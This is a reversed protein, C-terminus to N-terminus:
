PNVTEDPYSETLDFTSVMSKIKSGIFTGLRHYGKANFHCGDNPRFVDGNFANMGCENLVDIVPLCYRKAIARIVPETNIVTQTQADSYTSYPPTMLIIQAHNQTQAMISEIIKCYCGCETDAYDHWDDYPEVDTALTNTTLGGNTGFMILVVDASTDFTYDQNHSNWWGKASVGSHGYNITYCDLYLSLFYPYNERIVHSGVDVGKTLSDGICYIKSNYTLPVQDKAIYVGSANVRLFPAIDGYSVGRVYKANNPVAYRGSVVGGLSPSQICSIFNKYEDFFSVSAIGPYGYLRYTVTPAGDCPLFDTSLWGGGPKYSTGDEKYIVDSTLYESDYYASPSGIGKLADLSIEQGYQYITYNNSNRSDGAKYYKSQYFYKANQPVAIVGEVPTFTTKSNDCSIFNKEADYFAIPTIVTASYNIGCFAISKVGYPIEVYGSGYWSRNSVSTDTFFTGDHNALKNSDYTIDATITYGFEESVQVQFQDFNSKLNSVDNEIESVDVCLIAVECNTGVAITDNVAIGIIAKYLVDNLIFYSGEPHAYQATTSSESNAIMAKIDADGSQQVFGPLNQYVGGRKVKAINPYLDIPM